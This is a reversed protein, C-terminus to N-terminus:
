KGDGVKLDRGREGQEEEGLKRGFAEREPRLYKVDIYRLVGTMGIVLIWLGISTQWGYKYHPAQSAPWVLVQSWASIAYYIAI